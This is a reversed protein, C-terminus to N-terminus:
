NYRTVETKPLSTVAREQHMEGSSQGNETMVATREAEKGAEIKRAAEALDTESTVNYRDFAARTKHGSIKMAVTEPVGRRVM